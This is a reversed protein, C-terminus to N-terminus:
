QGAMKTLKLLQQYQTLLRAEEDPRGKERAAKLEKVILFQKELMKERNSSLVLKRFERPALNESWVPFNEECYLALVNLKEKLLSDMEIPALVDAAPREGGSPLAERAAAYPDDDAAILEPVLTRVVPYLLAFGLCLEYRTFPAETMKQPEAKKMAPTSGSKWARYDRDFESEVVGFSQAAKQMYARVEVSTPVADLLPFLTEAVVRKGSPEAVDTRTKLRSIVSDIYPTAADSILHTFMSADKQVLEDPDKAPLTVSNIRLHARSLLDFARVAALQGANDQDLCLIVEDAHRRLIKVHEETLATGSVAVVHEIGAKHAAICDFYGEVLVVTRTKRIADRAQFLGFLVASKNYLPSEPSNVYKADSDGMARGGFGIIVGQADRIPFMIRHRFRDYIKNGDIEKQVGLGAAVVESRSFGLKLLHDYTESFSDPAYGIGFKTMLEPPVGRNQVYSLATPVAHLKAEYFTAAAAICERLREKEDKSVSPKKSSFNDKPIDVGAKEALMKVATPFDVSEIKQFFSFIDGGSQCAFCYAIGKDPSILFSPRSDNHFPCLSVFNRGKRKIQCYQAVLQDIPLRARIEDKVDM